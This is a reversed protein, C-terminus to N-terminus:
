FVFRKQGKLSSLIKGVMLRPKDKFALSTYKKAKVCGENFNEQFGGPRPNKKSKVRKEITLTKNKANKKVMSEVITKMKWSFVGRKGRTHPTIWTLTKKKFFFHFIGNLEFLSKCPICVKLITFPIFLSSRKKM